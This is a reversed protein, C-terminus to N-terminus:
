FLFKLRLYGFDSDDFRGILDRGEGIFWGASGELSVDDRLTATAIGRLFASGETTNCVGFARARYRERGFTRDASVILSVDTRGSEYAAGQFALPSDYSERHLLV